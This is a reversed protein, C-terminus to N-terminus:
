TTISNVFNVYTGREVVTSSGLLGAQHIIVQNLFKIIPNIVHIDNSKIKCLENMKECGM